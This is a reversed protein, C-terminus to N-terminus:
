HFPHERVEDLSRIRAALSRMVQLAFTPTEHVLFIFTREDIVAVLSPEAAIATLSRPAKSIIALEGFTDGPVLTTVVDDGDRLEISGRVVGFMQAGTDGANFVVDGAELERTEKASAFVGQVTM